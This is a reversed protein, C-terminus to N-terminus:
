RHFSWRARFWCARSSRSWSSQHTQQWRCYRQVTPSLHVCPKSGLYFDFDTSGYTAVWLASVMSGDHSLGLAAWQGSNMNFILMKVRTVKNSDYTWTINVGVNATPSPTQTVSTASLTNPLTTVQNENNLSSDSPSVDSVLAVDYCHLYM